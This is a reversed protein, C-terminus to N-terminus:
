ANAPAWGSGDCTRDSPRPRRQQTPTDPLRIAALVKTLVDDARLDESLAEYSLVVRHRLVDLALERVDEPIAYDRGRIVALAKAALIMSISARPSAGRAFGLIYESPLVPLMSDAPGKAPPGVADGFATWHTIPSRTRM